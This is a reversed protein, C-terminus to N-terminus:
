PEENGEVSDTNSNALQNLFLDSMNKLNQVGGLEWTRSHLAERCTVLVEDCAPDM